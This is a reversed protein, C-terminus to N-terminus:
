TTVTIERLEIERGLARGVLLWPSSCMMGATSLSETEWLQSRRVAYFSKSPASFYGLDVDGGVLISGVVM